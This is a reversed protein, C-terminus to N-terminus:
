RNSIGDHEYFIAVFGAPDDVQLLLSFGVTTHVYVFPSHVDM